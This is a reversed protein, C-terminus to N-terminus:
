QSRRNMGSTTDITVRTAGSHSTSAASAPITSNTTIRYAITRQAHRRTISMAAAALRRRVSAASAIAATTTNTAARTLPRPPASEDNGVGTTSVYARCIRSTAVAIAAGRESAGLGGIVDSRDRM